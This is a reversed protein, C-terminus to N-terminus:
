LRTSTRRDGGDTALGGGSYYRHAHQWVDMQINLAREKKCTGRAEKHSSVIIVVRSSIIVPVSSLRLLDSPLAARHPCPALCVLVARQREDAGGNQCGHKRAERRRSKAWGLSTRGTCCECWCEQNGNSATTAPCAFCTSIERTSPPPTAPRRCVPRGSERREVNFPKNVPCSVSPSTCNYGSRTGLADAGIVLTSFGGRRAHCIDLRVRRGHRPSHRPRSVASCGDLITRRPVLRTRGRPVLDKAAGREVFVIDGPTETRLIRTLTRVSDRAKTHPRSVKRSEALEERIM